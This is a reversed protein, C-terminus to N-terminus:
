IEPPWPRATEADIWAQIWDPMPPNWDPVGMAAVVADTPVIGSSGVIALRYIGASLAEGKRYMAQHLYFFRADRAVARSRMEFRDFLVVRRRYRMSVGAITLGWGKARTARLMGTRMALPLRGLDYLSLTRGNNLESWMDLDWPLCTHRSVHVGDIALPAARRNILIEIGLRLFPYM